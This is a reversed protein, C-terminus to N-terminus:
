QILHESCAWQVQGELTMIRQLNGIAGNKDVSSLFKKMKFPESSSEVSDMDRPELSLVSPEDLGLERNSPAQLRIRLVMALVRTM